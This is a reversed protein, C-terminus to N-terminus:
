RFTFMSGERFFECAGMDVIRTFVDLRNHGRVDRAGNMWAANIGANICPSNPLLSYDAANTDTFLPDIFINGSGNVGSPATCSNTFQAKDYQYWNSRNATSAINYYIISNNIRTNVGQICLGGGLSGAGPLSTNGVITCNSIYGQNAYVGGGENSSVNGM